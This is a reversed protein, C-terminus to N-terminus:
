GSINSNDAYSKYNQVMNLPQLHTTVTVSPSTGALVYNLRIYREFAYNTLPIVVSAGATLQAATIATSSVTALSGFAEDTDTVLNFTYTEDTTTFDAAVDVNIVIAMPEGVGINRTTNVTLPGLDLVNTSATTAPGTLAQADSFLQYADLIM